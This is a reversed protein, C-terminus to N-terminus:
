FKDCDSGQCDTSCFKTRLCLPGRNCIPKNWYIHNLRDILKDKSFASRIEDSLNNYKIELEESSLLGIIGKDGHLLAM